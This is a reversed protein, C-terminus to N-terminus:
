NFSFPLLFDGTDLLVAFLIFEECPLSQRVPVLNILTQKFYHFIYSCCAIKMQSFFVAWPIGM